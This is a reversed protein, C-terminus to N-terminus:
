CKSFAALRRKGKEWREVIEENQKRTSVRVYSYIM